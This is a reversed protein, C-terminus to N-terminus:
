EEGDRHGGVGRDGGREGRLAERHGGGDGGALEGGDGGRVREGRVGERSSPRQEVEISERRM